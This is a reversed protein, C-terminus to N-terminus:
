PRKTGLVRKAKRTMTSAYPSAPMLKVADLKPKSRGSGGESPRLTKPKVNQDSENEKAAGLSRPQPQAREKVPSSRPPSSAPTLGSGWPRPHLVSGRPPSEVAVGDRAPARQRAPSLSATQGRRPQARKADAVSPKRSEPKPAPEADRKPRVRAPSVITERTAPNVPGVASREPAAPKSKDPQPPKKAAAPKRQAKEKPKRAKEDALVKKGQPFRELAVRVRALVKELEGMVFAKGYREAFSVPNWREATELGKKAAVLSSLTEGEPVPAAATTLAIDDDAVKSAIEAESVFTAWAADHEALIRRRRDRLVREKELDILAQASADDGGAASVRFWRAAEDLDRTTEDGGVGDRHMRGLAAAADTVGLEVAKEYWAKAAKVDKAVGRPPQFPPAGVHLLAALEASAAPHGAEAAKQFWRAAKGASAGGKTGNGNLWACGLHYCAESIGAEAAQAYAEVAMSPKAGGIIGLGNMLCHGLDLAAGAHGREAAFRFAEAANGFDREAGTGTACCVGWRYSCELSGAEAGRRFWYAGERPDKAVGCDGNMYIEGLLEMADTEVEAVVKYCELAKREDKPCGLGERYCTALNVFALTYGATASREFWGFATSHDRPLEIGQFYTAGLDSMAKPDGMEAKERLIRVM